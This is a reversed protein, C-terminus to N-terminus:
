RCWIRRGVGGVGCSGCHYRRRAGLWGEPARAGFGRGGFQVIWLAALCSQPQPQKANVTIDGIRRVRFQRLGAADVDRGMSHYDFTAFKRHQVAGSLAELVDPDDGAEAKVIENGAGTTM